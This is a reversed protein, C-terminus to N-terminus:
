HTQMQSLDQRYNERQIIESAKEAEVRLLGGDYEMIAAREEYREQMDSPWHIIELPLDEDTPFLDEYTLLGYPLASKIWLRIDGGELFYDGVDKGSPTPLRKVRDYQKNWWLWGEAGARDYDLAGLILPSKKLITHTMEDPRITASGLVVVNVFDGAEQQVLLGDIESEVVITACDRKYILCTPTVKSGPIAYYKKGERYHQRRIKVYKINEQNYLPIVIGAPLKSKGTDLGWQQRDVYQDTPNYGLKYIKITTDTLGRAYLHIRHERNNKLLAHCGHVFDSANEQWTPPPLHTEKPQWAVKKTDRLRKHLPQVGVQDCADQYSLGQIDRLFQIADGKIKCMRCWYRGGHSDHHNPWVIFRDTGGCVPCPGAYEGGKTSAKKKLVIDTNQVLDFVNM